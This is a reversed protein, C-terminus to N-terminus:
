KATMWLECFSLYGTELGTVREWWKSFPSMKEHSKLGVSRVIIQNNVKSVVYPYGWPDLAEGKDNFKVSGSLGLVSVLNKNDIQTLNM